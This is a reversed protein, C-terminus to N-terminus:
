CRQISRGIAISDLGGRSRAVILSLVVGVVYPM